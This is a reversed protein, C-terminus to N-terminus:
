IIYISLEDASIFSNGRKHCCTVFHGDCGERTRPNFSQVDCMSMISVM